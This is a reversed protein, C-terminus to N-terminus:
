EEGVRESPRTTPDSQPGSKRVSFERCVLEGVECPTRCVRVLYEIGQIRDLLEAHQEELQELEDIAPRARDLEARLRSVESALDDALGEYDVWEQSPNTKSLEYEALLNDTDTM